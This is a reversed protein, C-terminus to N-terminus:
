SIICSVCEHMCVPIQKYATRASVPAHWVGRGGDISATFSFGKLVVLFWIFFKYQMPEPGGTGKTGKGKRTPSSTPSASPSSSPSDSPSSTPVPTPSATIRQFCRDLRVGGQWDGGGSGARHAVAPFIPNAAGHEGPTNYAHLTAGVELMPACLWMRGELNMWRFSLSKADGDAVNTFTWSVRKWGDAAFVPKYHAHLQWGLAAEKVDATFAGISVYGEATSDVKVYISATYKVGPEMPAFDGYSYWFGSGDNPGDGPCPTEETVM